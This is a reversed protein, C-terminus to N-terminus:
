LALCIHRAWTKLKHEGLGQHSPIDITHKLAKTRQDNQDLFTATGTNTPEYVGLTPLNIRLSDYGPSTHM